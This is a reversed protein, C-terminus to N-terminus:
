GRFGQVRDGDLSGREATVGTGRVIGRCRLCSLQVGGRLYAACVVGHLRPRLTSATSGLGRVGAWCCRSCPAELSLEWWSERM